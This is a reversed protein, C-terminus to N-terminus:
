SVKLLLLFGSREGRHSSKMSRVDRGCSSTLGSVSSTLAFEVGVSQLVSVTSIFGSDRDKSKCSNDLM